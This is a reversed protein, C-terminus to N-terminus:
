SNLSPLPDFELKKGIKNQSVKNGIWDTCTLMLLPPLQVAMPRFEVLGFKQPCALLPITEGVLLVKSYATLSSLPLETVM